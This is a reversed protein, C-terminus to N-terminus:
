EIEPTIDILTVADSITTIPNYQQQQLGINIDVQQAAEQWGLRAKSVFIKGTTNGEYTVLDQEMSYNMIEVMTALTEYRPDIDGMRLVRQITEQHVGLWLALNTISLTIDNNYCFVLYDSCAKRLVEQDAYLHETKQTPFLAGRSICESVFAKKAEQSKEASQAAYSKIGSKADQRKLTKMGAERQELTLTEPRVESSSSLLGMDQDPDRKGRKPITVM